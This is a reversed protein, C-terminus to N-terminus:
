NALLEQWSEVELLSDIWAHLRTLSAKELIGRISADPEGLRRSGIKVLMEQAESLRGKTVGAAEGDALIKQYTSSAELVLKILV